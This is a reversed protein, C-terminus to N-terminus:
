LIENFQEYGSFVLLFSTEIFVLNCVRFPALLSSNNFFFLYIFLLSSNLKTHIVNLNWRVGTLIAVMLFVFLLHQHPHLSFPVKM